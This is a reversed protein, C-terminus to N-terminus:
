FWLCEKHWCLKNETYAIDRLLHDTNNQTKINYTFDFDNALIWFKTYSRHAYFESSLLVTPTQYGKFNRWVRKNEFVQTIYDIDLNLLILNGSLLCWHIILKVFKMETHSLMGCHNSCSSGVTHRTLKDGQDSHRILWKSDIYCLVRLYVDENTKGANCVM